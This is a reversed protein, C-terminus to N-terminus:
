LFSLGAWGLEVVLRSLCNEPLLLKNFGCQVNLVSYCVFNIYIDSFDTLM